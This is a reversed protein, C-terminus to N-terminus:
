LMNKTRAYHEGGHPTAHRTTGLHHGSLRGFQAMNTM